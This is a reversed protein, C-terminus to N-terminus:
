RTLVIKGEGLLTGNEGSMVRYLYIGNPQNSINITKSGGKNSGLNTTYVNEGLVNYIEVISNGINGTSTITFEGSNPNPYITIKSDNGKVSAVGAVSYVPICVSDVCGNNDTITCCYDKTGCQDPVYYTTNGNSWNYTYPTIGGSVVVWASGTCSGSDLTSNKTVIVATPQIITSEATATCGNADTVNVIYTGAALSSAVATTEGGTWSYKYPTTGGGTTTVVTGTKFGHCLVQNQVSNTTSLVTPQTITTRASGTCGNNDVLTVTYIGAVLGMATDLTGGSPSWTFNYPPTGSKAVAFTSGQNQGNCLVNATTSATMALPAPQTITATASATAGCANVVNVTYIGATLGTALATSQLSPSWTYVYPSGVGNVTVNASGNRAGACSANAVVTTSATIVNAPQTITATASASGGCASTVTVTYSGATLGTATDTTQGGPKWAYTLGVGTTKAYIKGTTGNCTVENALVKATDTVAIIAVTWTITVSGSGSPAGGALNTQNTGGNYSGGGGGSGWASGNWDDGGGGGNYGGGGGSAGSNGACGGGGGYCGAAGPSGAAGGAAGNLPSYGGGGANGWQGIQGNTLWGGGGGGTANNGNNGTGGGGGNGGAGGAGCGAGSSTTPTTTASGAGPTSSYSAGGGGGAVIMPLTTSASNWVYTGGGGGASYYPGSLSYQQWQGVVIDLVNGPTVTFTGSIKAGLGGSGYVGSGGQGGNATITIQTACPVTWSQVTNTYTFTVSQAKLGNSYTSLLAGVCITFIIKLYKM